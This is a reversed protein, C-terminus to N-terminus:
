PILDGGAVWEDTGRKYLTAMAYQGATKLGSRNRITVGGGPTITTAGAGLQAVNIYTGVVFAVSANPPITFTNAGANTMEVVQGADALVATYNAGAQPNAARMIGLREPAAGLSKIVKSNVGNFVAADGDANTAPGLVDGAGSGTPGPIGQIGQPGTGGLISVFSAWIGGAKPGYLRSNTLDIYLDGDFGLSPAPAGSGSLVVPSDLNSLRTADSNWGLKKGAVPSPVIHTQPDISPHTSAFRLSRDGVEKQEQILRMTKDLQTELNELSLDGGYLLDLTQTLATARKILITKGAALPAVLTVSGPTASGAGTLTYDTTIALTTPHTDDPDVFTSVVIESNEAFLIPNADDDTLPFPGTSGSGAYVAAVGLASLTM